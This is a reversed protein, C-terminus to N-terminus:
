RECDYNTAFHFDFFHKENEINYCLTNIEQKIYSFHVQM